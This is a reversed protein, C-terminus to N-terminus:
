QSDYAPALGLSVRTCAREKSRRAQGVVDMTPLSSAPSAASPGPSRTRKAEREGIADVSAARKRLAPVGDRGEAEQEGGASMAMPDCREAM